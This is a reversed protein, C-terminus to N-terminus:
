DENGSRESASEGHEKGAYEPERRKLWGVVAYTVPLLIAEVAVKYIFGVVTLNVITELPMDGALIVSGWAVACFVVTDVAEGVLTSGMLRAWLHKEGWRKKIRVLVYSNLLQGCLFGLTSAAVFRPVVGVVAAFADQDVYDGSPPLAVVIAFVISAVLQVLFGTVIVRRARRFGYVESLVDGLVYTLPFLIAGGDFVLHLPGLDLGILKTAAINSVLLFAVFVVAIIDYYGRASRPTPASEPAPVVGRKPSGSGTASDSSASSDPSASNPSNPTTNNPTPM